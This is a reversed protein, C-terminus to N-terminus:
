GEELRGILMINHVVTRLLMEMRRRQKLRSRLYDGLNRKLMSNITEAQARQHYLDRDAGRALRRSMHRRWRGAPAKASPRGIRAPIISRVGLESRALRHNEESDFGADAVANPVRARRCADRLLPAWDPSDSRGGLHTRAALILHCAAAGALTLKPLRRVERRRAEDASIGPRPSFKGGPALGMRRCRREYHRSRHRQEYHTSDAVLPKRTLGLRRQHRLLAAQLDLARGLRRRTCLLGFARCLTNHDPPRALGIDALWQPSDRLLAETRRYSLRMVERVVLCAFLQPLTFTRRSFRHSHEPLFRRALAYAVRM